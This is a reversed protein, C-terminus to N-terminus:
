RSFGTSNNEFIHRSIGLGMNKFSCIGKDRSIV